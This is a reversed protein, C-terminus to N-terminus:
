LVPKRGPVFRLVLVFSVLVLVASLWVVVRLGAAIPDDGMLKMAFQTFYLLVLFLASLDGDCLRLSNPIGPQAHSRSPDTARSSTKRHVSVSGVVRHCAGFSWSNEPQDM